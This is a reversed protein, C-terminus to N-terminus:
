HYPSWRSRCVHWCEKGVRREESREDSDSLTFGPSTNWESDVSEDLEANLGSAQLAEEIEEETPMDRIVRPEHTTVLGRVFREGAQKIQGGHRAAVFTAGAALALGMGGGRALVEFVFLSVPATVLVAKGNETLKHKKM